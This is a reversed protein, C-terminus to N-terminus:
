PTVTAGTGGADKLRLMRAGHVAVRGAHVWAVTRTAATLNDGTGWGTM